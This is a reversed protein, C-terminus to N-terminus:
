TQPEEISPMPWPLETPLDEFRALVRHAGARLLADPPHNGWAVGLAPVGAAGAMEIDFTTDGVMITDAPTAGVDDMAGRLMAPHPKGPGDDATRVTMFRGHLGHREILAAVGRRSKGTALGLLCGAAELTDLVQRAGPFLPEAQGSQARLTAFAEKYLAAVRARTTEDAGPTVGAVAENLSLGIVARTRADAPIAVGASRCAAAMAAVIIHQSDVLTGDVDFVVLRLAPGPGAAPTARPPLPRDHTM